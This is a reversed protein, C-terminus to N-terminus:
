PRLGRVLIETLRATLAARREVGREPELVLRSALGFMAAWFAQACLEPEGAAVSGEAMGRAMLEALLAFSRRSRSVGPGLSDLLEAPYSDREPERSGGAVRLDQLLVAKFLDRNALAFDVYASVASRLIAEVTDGRAAIGEMIVLLRAYGESVVQGVLEDKDAFHRYIAAQSIGVRAALHRMSLAESGEAALIETAAALLRQATGGEPETKM